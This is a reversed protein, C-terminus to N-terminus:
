TLRREAALSAQEVSPLSTLKHVLQQVDATENLEAYGMRQLKPDATDPFLVGVADVGKWKQVESIVGHLEQRPADHSVSFMITKKAM